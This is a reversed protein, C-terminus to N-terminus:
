EGKPAGAAAPAPDTGPSFASAVALVVQEAIAQEAGPRLAEAIEEWSEANLCGPQRVFGLFYWGRTFDGFVGVQKAEAGGEKLVTGKADRLRWHAHVTLAYRDSSIFYNPFDLPFFCVVFVVKLPFIGSQSQYRVAASDITVELTESAPADSPLSYPSSSASRRLAALRESIAGADLAPHISGRAAGKATVDYDLAVSTVVAVSEPAFWKEVPERPELGGCGGIITTVALALSALFPRSM